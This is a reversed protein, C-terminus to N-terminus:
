KKDKSAKKAPIYKMALWKYPVIYIEGQKTQLRHTGNKNIYCVMAGEIEIQQNDPFIYTRSIENLELVEIRKDEKM